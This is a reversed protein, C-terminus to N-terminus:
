EIVKVISGAPLPVLEPQSSEESAFVPVAEDCSDESHSSKKGSLPVAQPQPQPQTGRPVLRHLGLPQVPATFRLSRGTDEVTIWGSGGVRARLVQCHELFATQVVQVLSGVQPSGVVTTDLGLGATQVFFDHEHEREDEADWVEEMRGDLSESAVSGLSGEVKRSATPHVIRHAGLQWPQAWTEGLSDMLSM